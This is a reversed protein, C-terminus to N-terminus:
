EKGDVLASSSGQREGNLTAPDAVDGDDRADAADDLTGFRGREVLFQVAQDRV